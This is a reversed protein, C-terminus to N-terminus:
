AFGFCWHHCPRQARNLGEVRYAGSRICSRGFSILFAWDRVGLSAHMWGHFMPHITPSWMCLSYRYVLPLLGLLVGLNPLSSHHFQQIWMMWAIWTHHWGGLSCMHEIQCEPNSRCIAQGPSRASAGLSLLKPRRKKPRRRGRLVEFLVVMRPMSSCLLHSSLEIFVHNRPRKYDKIQPKQKM